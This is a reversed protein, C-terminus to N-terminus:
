CFCLMLQLALRLLCIRKKSANTAANCVARLMTGSQVIKLILGLDM